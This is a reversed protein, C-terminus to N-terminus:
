YKFEIFKKFLIFKTNIKEAWPVCGDFAPYVEVRFTKIVSFICKINLNLLSKKILYIKYKNKRGVSCVSKYPFKLGCLFCLFININLNLIRKSM